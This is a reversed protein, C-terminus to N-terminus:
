LSVDKIAKKRSRTAKKKKKKKTKSERCMDANNEVTKKMEIINKEQVYQKKISCIHFM